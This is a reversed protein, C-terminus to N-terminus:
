RNEKSYYCHCVSDYGEGEHNNGGGGGGAAGADLCEDCYPATALNSGCALMAVMLVTTAAALTGARILTRGAIGQKSRSRQM